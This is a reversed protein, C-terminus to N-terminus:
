LTKLGKNLGQNFSESVYIGGSSKKHNIKIIDSYQNLPLRRKPQKLLKHLGGQQRGSGKRKADKPHRAIARCSLTPSTAGLGNKQRGSGKKTAGLGKKDGRARKQRGSRLSPDRPAQTGRSSLTPFTAGLRLGLPRRPIGDRVFHPPVSDRAFRPTGRRKRAEPHCPPFHRGSAYASPDGPSATGLSTLLSATGLSALPGENCDPHYLATNFYDKFLISL